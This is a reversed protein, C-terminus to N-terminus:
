FIQTGREDQGGDSRYKEYANKNFLDPESLDVIFFV